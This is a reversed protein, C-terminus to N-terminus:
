PPETVGTLEGLESGGAGGLQLERETLQVLHSLQKDTAGLSAQAQSLDTQEDLLRTVCWGLSTRIQEVQDVGAAVLAEEARPTTLLSSAPSSASSDPSMQSSLPPSMEVRQQVPIAASRAAPKVAPQAAPPLVQQAAPTVVAQQQVAAPLVQLNQQAAELLQM